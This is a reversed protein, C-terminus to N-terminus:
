LSRKGTMALIEIKRVDENGAKDAPVREGNTSYHDTVAQLAALKEEPATVQSARTIGQM